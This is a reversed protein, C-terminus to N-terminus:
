KEITIQIIWDINRHFTDARYSVRCIQFNEPPTWAEQGGEPDAYGEITHSNSGRFRHVDWSRAVYNVNLLNNQLTKALTYKKRKQRLLNIASQRVPM